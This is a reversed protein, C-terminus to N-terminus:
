YTQWFEAARNQWQRTLAKKRCQCIL